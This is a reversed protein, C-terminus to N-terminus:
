LLPPVGVGLHWTGARSGSLPFLAGARCQQAWLVLHLHQQLQQHALSQRGAGPRPACRLECEEKSDFRNLNGQCGSYVFPRCETVRQNYYWRLTYRQCDGEDLPLRCPETPLPPSVGSPSPQLLRRQTGALLQSTPSVPVHHGCCGKFPDYLSEGFAAALPVERIEQPRQSRDQPEHGSCLFAALAAPGVLGACWGDSSTITKTLPMSCLTQMTHAACHYLLHLGGLYWHSPLFDWIGGSLHCLSESGLQICLGWGLLVQPLEMTEGLLKARLALHTCPLEGDVIPAYCPIHVPTTSPGPSGHPSRSSPCAPSAWLSLVWTFGLLIPVPSPVPLCM